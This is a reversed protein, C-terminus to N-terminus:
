ADAEGGAQRPRAVGTDAFVPILTPPGDPLVDPLPELRRVAEEFRM